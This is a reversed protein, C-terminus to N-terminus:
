QSTFIIQVILLLSLSFCCRWGMMKKEGTLSLRVGNGLCKGERGWLTCNSQPILTISLGYYSQKFAGESVSKGQRQTPAEVAAPFCRRWWPREMPQLTIEAGACPLDEETREEGMKTNGFNNRGNKGWKERDDPSKAM